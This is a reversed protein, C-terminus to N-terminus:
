ALAAASDNKESPWPRSFRWVSGSMTAKELGNDASTPWTRRVPTVTLSYPM